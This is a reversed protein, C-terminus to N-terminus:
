DDDHGLAHVVGKESIHFRGISLNLDKPTAEIFAYAKTIQLKHNDESVQSLNEFGQLLKKGVPMVMGMVVVMIVVVVLLEILTFAPRM